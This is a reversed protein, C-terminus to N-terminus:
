WTTSGTPIVVVGQPSCFGMQSNVLKWSWYSDRDWKRLGEPTLPLLDSMPMYATPALLRSHFPRNRSCFLMGKKRQARRDHVSGNFVELFGWKWNIACFVAMHTNPKWVMRRNRNVLSFLVIRKYTEPTTKWLKCQSEKQIMFVILQRYYCVVM